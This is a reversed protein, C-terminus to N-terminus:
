VASREVLPQPEASAAASRSIVAYGVSALIELEAAAYAEPDFDSEKLAPLAAVDDPGYRCRIVVFHDHATCYRYLAHM